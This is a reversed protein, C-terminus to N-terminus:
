KDGVQLVDIVMTKGVGVTVALGSNITISPTVTVVYSTSLGANSTDIMMNETVADWSDFYSFPSSTSGDAYNIATGLGGGAGSGALTIDVIAGRAAFTNGTGLFNITTVGQGIQVGGSQVGVSATLTTTVGVIDGGVHLNKEIGVGGEVIVAGTDKSTSQTTDSVTLTGGLTNTSANANVADAVNFSDFIHFEIYDSATAAQTLTVTSGDRAEYDLADVLRVGNRFVGLNNIRYGDTVTFQTQGATAQINIVKTAVNTSLSYPRGIAM